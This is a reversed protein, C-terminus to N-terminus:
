IKGEKFIIKFDEQPMPKAFYYGQAVNCGYEKMLDVNDQTEVGEVVIKIDLDHAMKTISSLIIKQRESKATDQLFGRDFKIVDIDVDKLMNLSSYGSGFDDMSIQLGHEHLHNIFEEIIQYNDFIVTETLEIEILQTPVDYENILQLLHHVFDHSMLHMRSFNVSIPYCKINQDLCTRLFQLTKRFIAFDIEHILGTKESLPIFDSPPIVVGDKTIWRALAEAGEIENTNINIKPQFFPIIEDNQIAKEIARKAQENQILKKDLESDYFEVKKRHTGKTSKSALNAKDVMLNINENKDNVKYIGASLYIVINDVTLEPLFIEKLREARCDELLLVFHDSYIRACLEDNKLVRSYLHHIVSLIKDGVDYGYYNNIYKFNDVDFTFIYYQKDPNVQFINQIDFQFKTFTDLGTVSDIFALKKLKREQARKSFFFYSTSILFGIFLVLLVAYFIKVVTRVNPLVANTKISSVLYWDYVKDLPTYTAYVDSGKYKLKIFGTTKDEIGKQLSRTQEPNDSYLLRYLNDSEPTYDEDQSSIVIYGDGNIIYTYGADSYISTSCLAYMQELSFQKQITGIVEDKYLIPASIVYLVQGDWRSLLRDSINSEGAMSLRFYQRGTVDITTGSPLFASGNPLALFLQTENNQLTYEMFSQELPVDEQQSYREALQKAVISLSNVESSLNNNIVDKNQEVIEKLNTEIDDNLLNQAYSMLAFITLVLLANVLLLLLLPLKKTVKPKRM